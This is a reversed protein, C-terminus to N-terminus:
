PRASRRADRGRMIANIMDSETRYVRRRGHLTYYVRVVNWPPPTSLVEKGAMLEPDRYVTLTGLRTRMEDVKRWLPVVETM